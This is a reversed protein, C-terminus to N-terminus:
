PNRQVLWQTDLVARPTHTRSLRLSAHARAAASDHAVARVLKFKLVANDVPCHCSFGRKADGGLVQGALISSAHRVFSARRLKSVLSSTAGPAEPAAEPAPAPAPPEAVLEGIAPSEVCEEVTPSAEPPPAEPAPAPAPAQALEVDGEVAPSAEPDAPAPAVAQDALLAAAVAADQPARRGGCCNLGDRFM